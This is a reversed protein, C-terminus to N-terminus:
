KEIALTAEQSDLSETTLVSHLILDVYYDGIEEITCAGDQQYWKYLWNVMGLIAMVTIDTHVEARFKHQRKGEDIVSIIIEKFAKRKQHIIERDEERLYLSEQYFVTIHPKYLHFVQLFGRIVATLKEIPDDHNRDALEAKDLAYTIFVDHIVFLLEEKSSFHYYFGGKSTDAERVIEDISVGHYGKHDFLLLATEIIRDRVQMM